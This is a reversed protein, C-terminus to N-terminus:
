RGELHELVSGRTDNGSQTEHLKAYMGGQKLLQKHTGQEIIKGEHLVVILNANRITNLRHAIVFSTRGKMLRALAENIKIETITDISSTAEDLILLSPSAIMARAIAILQRQGQSIDRGDSHLLTDYGEPLKMIFSHANAEKAAEIVDADSADLKGYRINERVTTHFLVSDQIVVGMQKRLSSRTIETIDNGDILITGKNADYFRSLLSTITTKGAGTPGVLAITDGPAAKFSVDHLTQDVDEYSFSVSRFEIEGKISPIDVEKRLNLDERDEDIVHFVREAGAVASLITNFQNALDNLPRTFQRSYTTFTVIVGISVAGKVALLGGVGVIITFSVNNLMNMLKPIFGSYTQAFYGSNKLAENKEHFEEIVKQEKSFMKVITHGALTEEIYGNLEGLHRQQEKFYVGTRNTIWKMGGYMVPVVTLTLLTLVPSLWLMVGITGLLTLISTTVQIISSNLTRSVNEMDNTLRSMIEGDHNKQFYSIPLKHLHSFLHSRMERVTRQAVTIMWYNQLWQATAQGAYVVLLWILMTALITTEFDEILLDVAIGLLYPGLLSLVSSIFVMSLVGIFLTRDKAIYAWIRLLTGKVNKVKPRKGLHM